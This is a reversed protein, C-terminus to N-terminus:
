TTVDGSANYGGAGLDDFYKWEDLELKGLRMRAGVTKIALRSM